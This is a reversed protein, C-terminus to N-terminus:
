SDRSLEKGKGDLLQYHKTELEEMRIALMRQATDADVDEQQMVIGVANVIEAGTESAALLEKEWSFLDNVLCVHAAINLDIEHILDAEDAPISVGTAWRGLATSVFHGIDTARWSLYEDLTTARDRHPETQARWFPLLACWLDDAKERDTLRIQDFLVALAQSAIDTSIRAKGTELEHTLTDTYKRGEVNGLKDIMDMDLFKQRQKESKFPWHKVFFDNNMACIADALVHQRPTFKGTWQLPHKIIYTPKHIGSPDTDLTLEM